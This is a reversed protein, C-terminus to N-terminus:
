GEEAWGTASASLTALQEKSCAPKALSPAAETKSVLIQQRCADQALLLARNRAASRDLLPGIALDTVQARPIVLLRSPQGTGPFTGLYLNSATDAVYVGIVPPHDSRLAVAPEVKPNGTTSFYTAFGIYIGVTVFAVVGFWVFKETSFYIALSVAVTGFAVGALALFEGFGANCIAGNLIPPVFLLILGGVVLEVRLEENALASESAVQLNEAKASNEAAEATMKLALAEEQEAKQRQQAADRELRVKMDPSASADKQALEAVDSLSTALTRAALALQTRAEADRAEKDARLRLERADKFRNDKRVRRWIDFGLHVVFIFAVALLALLVAPVLFSAGTTVLVSNPIAAVADNAPLGARDARIWLIAGGFLTVFGLIGVGTGVAGLIKLVLDRGDSANDESSSASKDPAEGPTAESIAM